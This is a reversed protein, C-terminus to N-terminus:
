TVPPLTPADQKALWADMQEQTDFFYHGELMDSAKMYEMAGSDAYKINQVKSYWEDADGAEISQLDIVYYRDDGDTAYTM